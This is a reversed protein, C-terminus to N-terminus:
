SCHEEAAAFAGADALAGGDADIGACGSHWAGPVLQRSRTLSAPETRTRTTQALRRALPPRASRAVAPALARRAVSSEVATPKRSAGPGSVLKVRGIRSSASIARIM